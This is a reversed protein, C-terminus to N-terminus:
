SRSRQRFWDLVAATGEDLSTWPKWGLHIAARGPDLCSRQWSAPGPRACCRRPPGGRRAAAMTATSSTSAPRTGPASTSCCVAEGSRRGPSPTSWTTSSSSTGPRTATASSPARSAGVAAPRRLHGGRRGRRPPGAPPRVRQGPGPRHVGPQAAGPLCDPLRRRGEQGRRLAVGAAPPPVGQGPPRGPDPDGYITGGSSAFVVKRAGSSRAAELVRLSGM